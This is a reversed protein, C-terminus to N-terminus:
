NFWVVTHNQTVLSPPQDLCTIRGLDSFFGRIDTIFGVLRSIRTVSQYFLIGLILLTCGLISQVNPYAKQLRDHHLSMYALLGGIMLELCRSLPSYFAATKDYGILSVNIAFSLVAIIGTLPLILRPKKWAFFLLLPWVIYFQEEIALSWLHLFPKTEASGDFYGSEHWLVFNSVYTAGGAIHKGLQAYEDAAFLFWGGILSAVMVTLLAPFIRRVRRSYFDIFSFSNNQLNTLIILSILYGSIVFFIDVGIFGGDIVKPLMHYGVVSLVAVGRLGDIDPRYAPHVAPSNPSQM